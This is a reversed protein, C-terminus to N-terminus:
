SGGTHSDVTPDAGNEYCHPLSADVADERFKTVEFGPPMHVQTM